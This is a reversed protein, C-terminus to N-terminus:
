YQDIPDDECLQVKSKNEKVIDDIFVQTVNVNSTNSKWELFM